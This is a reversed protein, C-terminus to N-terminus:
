RLSFSLRPADGDPLFKKGDLSVSVAFAAGPAVGLSERRLKTRRRTSGEPAPLRKGLEFVSSADGHVVRVAFGELAPKAGEVTEVGVYLSDGTSGLVATAGGGLDVRRFALHYALWDAVNAEVDAVKGFMNTGHLGMPGGPDAPDIPAVIKLEAGKGELKVLIPSAGAKAEGTSSVLLLPKGRPWRAVHEMTPVGLYDAGPTLTVVAAFEDPTRTAADIAVSCGVSAGLLGIRGRPTKKEAALWAVAAAVDEHMANFVAPDRAEVQKALDNASGGHGRLDLALLGMGRDAIPAVMPTWSGREHRYMPLAVVVPAPEATGAAPPWYTAAIALGDATKFSVDEGKPADEARASSVICAAVLALLGASRM